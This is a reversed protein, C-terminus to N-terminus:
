QEATLTMKGMTEEGAHRFLLSAIVTLRLSSRQSLEKRVGHMPHM